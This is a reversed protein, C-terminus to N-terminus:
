PKGCEATSEDSNDSRAAVFNSKITIPICKQNGCQFMNAGCPGVSPTPLPTPLGPFRRHSEMLSKFINNLDKM